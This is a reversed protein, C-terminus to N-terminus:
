RRWGRVSRPWVEEVVGAPGVSLPPRKASGAIVRARIWRAERDTLAARYARWFDRRARLGVELPTSRNMQVLSRARHRAGVKRLVRAGDLDIFRVRLPSEDVVFINCTKLDDLWVGRGHLDALLAGLGAAAEHLREARGERAALVSWLWRDLECAPALDEMGVVGGGGLRRPREWLFCPEAVPVERDWLLVQARFGRRARRLSPYIKLCVARDGVRAGRVVVAKRDQKLVDIGTNGFAFAELCAEVLLPDAEEVARVTGGLRGPRSVALRNM